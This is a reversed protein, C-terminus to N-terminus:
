AGPMIPDSSPSTPGTDTYQSQTLHIHQDAVEIETHRCTFNDSCIRGKSISAHQQSTLCGAWLSSTFMAFSSVRLYRTHQEFLTYSHCHLCASMGIYCLSIVSPLLKQTSSFKLTAVLQFRQNCMPGILWSHTKDPKVTQGSWNQQIQEPYM